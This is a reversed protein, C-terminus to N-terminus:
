STGVQVDHHRVPLPSCGDVPAAHLFPRPGSRPPVVNKLLVGEVARPAQAADDEEAWCLGIEKGVPVAHIVPQLVHPRAQGRRTDPTVSLSMPPPRGSRLATRPRVRQGAEAAHPCEAEGIRLGIQQTTGSTARFCPELDQFGPSPSPLRKWTAHTRLSKSVYGHPFMRIRSSRLRKGFRNTLTNVSGRNRPSARAYHSASREPAVASPLSRRFRRVWTRSITTERPLLRGEQSSRRPKCRPRPHPWRPRGQLSGPPQPIAGNV